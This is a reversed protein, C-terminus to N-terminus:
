RTEFLASARTAEYEGLTSQEGLPPDACTWNAFFAGSSVLATCKTRIRDAVSISAVDMLMWSSSTVSMCPLIVQFSDSLEEIFYRSRALIGVFQGGEMVALDYPIVDLPHLVQAHQQSPDDSSVVTERLETLVVSQAPTAGVPL